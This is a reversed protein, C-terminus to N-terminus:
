AAKSVRGRRFYKWAKRFAQNRSRRQSPNFPFRKRIVKGDHGKFMAIYAADDNVWIDVYLSWGYESKIGIGKQRAWRRLIADHYAVSGDECHLPKGQM